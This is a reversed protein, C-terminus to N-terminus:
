RQRGRDKPPAIHSELAELDEDLAALDARMSKVLKTARPDSRPAKSHPTSGSVLDDISIDLAASLRVLTSLRPDAREGNELRAVVNQSVRLEAALDAQTLGLRERASKIAPGIGARSKM